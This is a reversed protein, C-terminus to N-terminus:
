DSFSFVFVVGRLYLARTRNEFYLRFFFSSVGTVLRGVGLIFTIIVWEFWVTFSNFLFSIMIEWVWATWRGSM